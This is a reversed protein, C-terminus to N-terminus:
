VASVVSGSRPASLLETRVARSCSSSASRARASSGLRKSCSLFAHPASALAPDALAALRLAAHEVVPAGCGEGRRGPAGSQGPHRKLKM